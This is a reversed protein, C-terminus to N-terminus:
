EAEGALAVVPRRATSRLREGLRERVAGLVQEAVSEVPGSADIVAWGVPDAAAFELYAARVRQHFAIDAADLRNVGDAAAFRRGLGLAVPVDLLLRLDPSLGATALQQVSRLIALPLGRGGGQYALSSDVFRDCVVVSGADLAPRLVEGVHQARAAAYLLAETEALMAYNAQDLLIRRIQEGIATGGPERTLRVSYGDQRLREALLRAQTSKGAGEPGELVIFLGAM